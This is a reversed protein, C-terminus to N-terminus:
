CRGESAVVNELGYVTKADLRGSMDNESELRKNRISYLRATVVVLTIM